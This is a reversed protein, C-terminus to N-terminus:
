RGSEFSDQLKKSSTAHISVYISVESQSFNTVGYVRSKVDGAGFFPKGQM